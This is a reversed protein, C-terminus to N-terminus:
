CRQPCRGSMHIQAFKHQPCNCPQADASKGQDAGPAERCPQWTGYLPVLHALARLVLTSSRPSAASLIADSLDPEAPNNDHSQLIPRPILLHPLGAFRSSRKPLFLPACVSPQPAWVGQRNTTHRKTLCLEGGGIYTAAKLPDFLTHARFAAASTHLSSSGKSLQSVGSPFSAPAASAAKPIVPCRPAVPTSM